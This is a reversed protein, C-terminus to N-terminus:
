RISDFVERFAAALFLPDHQAREAQRALRFDMIKAGVLQAAERLEDWQTIADSDALIVDIRMDPRHEHFSRVLSAASATPAEDDPVLNLVLMKKATTHALRDALEPVLLHPIISTFWSGPGFIVWEADDIAELAHPHAPPNEPRLHVREVEARSKAVTVQGCITKKEGVSLVDAEIQLPTTSMPLVRGKVDLLRGILDLGDVPDDLLAWTAVILLNGVSHGNLSGTSEFRHQLVDRWTQGWEGDDCLAALAMRLDGPPLVDMEKRIRGSSGGDDGVTVIATVNRTLIRLASLTAYLGHGGGLAVVKHGRVGFDPM